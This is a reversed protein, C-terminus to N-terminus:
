ARSLVPRLTPKAGVDRWDWLLSKYSSFTVTEAPSLKPVFPLAQVRGGRRPKYRPTLSTGGLFLSWAHVFIFLASSDWHQTQLGSHFAATM